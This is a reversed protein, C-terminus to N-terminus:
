HAERNNEMGVAAANEFPYVAILPQIVGAVLAARADSTAVLLADDM